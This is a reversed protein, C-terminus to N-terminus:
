IGWIRVIQIQSCFTFILRNKTIKPVFYLLASGRVSFHFGFVWFVLFMSGLLNLNSLRAIYRIKALLLALPSITPWKTRGNWLTNKCQLGAPQESRDASTVPLFTSKQTCEPWRSQTTGWAKKICNVIKGKINPKKM